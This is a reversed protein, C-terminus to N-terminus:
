RNLSEVFIHAVRYNKVVYGFLVAQAEDGGAGEAVVEVAPPRHIDPPLIIRIQFYPLGVVPCM